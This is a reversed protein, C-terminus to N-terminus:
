GQAGGGKPMADFANVCLNMFASGLTSSEGLIPPLNDALRIDFAFRHRSTRVLLDLDKRLLANLDMQRAQQLGKRAFDTLGKVLDRGREAANEITRLSKLLPADGERKIQLLSALGLIAALVNNMDHAIGGALSGLSELKQAHQIETELKLREDEGRKQQTLDQAFALIAHGEPLDFAVTEM